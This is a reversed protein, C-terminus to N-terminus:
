VELHKALYVKKLAALRALRSNHRIIGVKSQEILKVLARQKQPSPLFIQFNELFEKPVRQQGAMGTMHLKAFKRFQMQQLFNFMIRSDLGSKTRLVHFETSGFGVGNELKSAFAGKGNEMCPTIKAFLIDGNRFYTFGKKVESLPRSVRQTIVGDESVSPM